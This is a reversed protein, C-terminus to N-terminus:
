NRDDDPQILPYRIKERITKLILRPRATRKRIVEVEVETGGYMDTTTSGVAEVRLLYRGPFLNNIDFRGRRLIDSNHRSIQFGDITNLSVIASRGRGAPDLVYGHIQGDGHFTPEEKHRASAATALLAAVALGTVLARM